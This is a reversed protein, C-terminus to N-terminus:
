PAPPPPAFSPAPPSYSPAGSSPPPASSFVQPAPPPPTGMVTPAGVRSAAAPEGPQSVLTPAEDAVQGSAAGITVVVRTDGLQVEDGSQLKCKNVKQGNVVTGRNSGLDIIYIEDPGTIEIVAHMRSVSEDDLRLHSSALKGIKIIDQNLSETRLLDSGKYIAFTLPIKVGGEM